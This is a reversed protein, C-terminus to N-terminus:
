RREAPPLASHVAAAPINYERLSDVQNKILAILPSVIIALREQCVAPLQYCLSKGGGTPLVVLSDRGNLGAAVAERQFPRLEDYGWYQRLVDLASDLADATPM